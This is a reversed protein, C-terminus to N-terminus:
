KRKRFRKEGSEERKRNRKAQKDFNIKMAIRKKKVKKLKGKDYDVDYEDRKRELKGLMFKNMATLEEVAEAAEHNWANIQSSKSELNGLKIKSTSEQEEIKPLKTSFVRMKVMQARPDKIRIFPKRKKLQTEFNDAQDKADVKKDFSEFEFMQNPLKSLEEIKKKEDYDAVLNLIADEKSKKNGTMEEFKQALDDSGEKQYMLIYVGQEKSVQDFSIIRVTEDDM